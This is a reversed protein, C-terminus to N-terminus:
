EKISYATDPLRKVGAAVLRKTVECVKPDCHGTYLGTLRLAPCKPCLKDYPCGVCEAGLLIEQAVEKTKKWADAFPMELVSAEGIHLMTCPHMSGDWSVSVACMGASCIVGKPPLAGAGGCPPQATIMPELTGSLLAQEKSLYVIEDITLEYDDKDSEDRKRVLYFESPDCWFRNDRCFRQINIVDDGMYTSPTVAVHVPINLKTLARISAVAKEFGRHGTVCLYKEESSGYLSIQVDAPPYKKFLAINEESLLLGNTLISIFVRKKWLHMYLDRFDSRLLCEGGSLSAFMMGCNYAEDFIRKWTETSLEKDASVNSNANHIYCMKCDLNCRATLEFHVTMPVKEKKASVLMERKWKEYALNRM